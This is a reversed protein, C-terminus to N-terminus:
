SARDTIVGGNIAAADEEARKPIAGPMSDVRVEYHRATTRPDTHLARRRGEELTKAQNINTKRLDQMRWPTFAKGLDEIAKNRAAEFRNRLMAYTVRQGADTQLLYPGTAARKRKTLEDVLMELDQEVSMLGLTGTKGSQYRLARVGAADKVVEVSKILTIDTVRQGIVIDLRMWDQLVEDGRDYIAWFMEDSVIVNRGPEHHGDIGICPNPLDTKGRSRAWNWMRSLTAKDRNVLYPTKSGAHLLQGVHLPRIDKMVADKFYQKLRKLSASYEKQTKAKLGLMGHKEFEDAISSFADKAASTPSKFLARWQEVAKDLDGGLPRQYGDAQQFYYLTSGGRERRLM